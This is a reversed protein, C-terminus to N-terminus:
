IESKNIGDRSMETKFKRNKLIEKVKVHTSIEIFSFIENIESESFVEKILLEDKSEKILFNVINKRADSLTVLDAYALNMALERKTMLEFVVEYAKNLDDHERHGIEKALNHYLKLDLNDMLLALPVDLARAIDGLVDIPINTKGSEYKEVSSKSKKILSALSQQSINKEIRLKKINSGISM